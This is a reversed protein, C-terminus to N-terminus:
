TVGFYIFQSLICKIQIKVQIPTGVVSTFSRLPNFSHGIFIAPALLIGARIKKNLEPRESLGIAYSTGGMSHGIFFVDENGTEHLM